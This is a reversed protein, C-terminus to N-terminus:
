ARLMCAASTMDHDLVSKEVELKKVVGDEVLM